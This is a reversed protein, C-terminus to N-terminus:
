GGVGVGQFPALPLVAERISDWSPNGENGDPWGKPRLPYM